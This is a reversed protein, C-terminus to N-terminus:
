SSLDPLRPPWILTSGRVILRGHFQENMYLTVNGIFHPNAVDHQYHTRLRKRLPNNELLALLNNQLFTICVRRRTNLEHLANLVGQTRIGNVFNGMNIYCKEKVTVQSITEQLYPAGQVFFIKRFLPLM